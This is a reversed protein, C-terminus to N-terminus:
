SIHIRRTMEDLRSDHKEDNLTGLREISSMLILGLALLISSMFFNRRVLNVLHLKVRHSGRMTGSSVSRSTSAASRVIGNDFM